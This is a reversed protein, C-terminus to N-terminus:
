DRARGELRALARRQAVGDLVARVILAAVVLATVGYASWVFVAHRGAEDM